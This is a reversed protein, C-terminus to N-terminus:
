LVTSVGTSDYRSSVPSKATVANVHLGLIADPAYQSM